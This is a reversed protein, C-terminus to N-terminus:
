NTYTVINTYRINESLNVLTPSPDPEPISRPSFFFANSKVQCITMPHITLQM